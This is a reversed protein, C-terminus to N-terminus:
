HFAENKHLKELNPNFFNNIGVISLCVMIVANHAKQSGFVSSNQISNPTQFSCFHSGM